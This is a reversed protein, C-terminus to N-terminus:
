KSHNQQWVCETTSTYAAAVAAAPGGFGAATAAVTAAAALLLVQCPSFGVCGLEWHFQGVLRFCAAFCILVNLKCISHLGFWM